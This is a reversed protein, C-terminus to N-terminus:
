KKKVLKNPRSSKYIKIRSQVKKFYEGVQYSELSSEKSKTKTVFRWLLNKVKRCDLRWSKVDFIFCKNVDRLIKFNKDTNDSLKLWNIKLKDLFHDFKCIIWGFLVLSNVFSGKQNLQLFTELALWGYKGIRLNIYFVFLLKTNASIKSETEVEHVKVKRITWLSMVGNKILQIVIAFLKVLDKKTLGDLVYIKLIM